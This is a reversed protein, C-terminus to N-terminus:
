SRLGILRHLNGPRGVLIHLPRESTGEKRREGAAHLLGVIETVVESKGGHVHKIVSCQLASRGVKDTLRVETGAQLLLKVSDLRNNIAALMLPSRSNTNVANM